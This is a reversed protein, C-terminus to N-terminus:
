SATVMRNKPLSLCSSFSTDQSMDTLVNCLLSLEFEFCQPDLSLYVTFKNAVLGGLGGFYPKKNVARFLSDFLIHNIVQTRQNLRLQGDM